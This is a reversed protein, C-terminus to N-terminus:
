SNIQLVIIFESGEGEKTEVNLGSGHANAIDYFTKIVSEWPNLSKM